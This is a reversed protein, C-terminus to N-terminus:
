LLSRWTGQTHITCMRVLIVPIKNEAKYTQHFSTVVQHFDRETDVGFSPVRPNIWATHWVDTRTEYIKKSLCTVSSHLTWNSEYLQRSDCSIGTRRVSCFIDSVQREIRINEHTQATCYHHRNLRATNHQITYM